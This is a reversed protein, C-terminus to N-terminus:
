KPLSQRKLSENDTQLLENGLLHEIVKVDNDTNFTKLKKIKFSKENCLLTALSTTVEFQKGNVFLLCPESNNETTAKRKKSYAFRSGYQRSLVTDVSFDNLNIAEENDNFLHSYRPTTIHQGFWAAINDPNTLEDLLMKQVKDLANGSIEGPTSQFLHLDEPDEYFNDQTLQQLREDCYASIMESIKPARFGISFTMCEGQAIGWHALKPPLYLIDGPQLLWEQDTTFEKVLSLDCNKVLPTKNDPDQNCFNGVKWLREGEAQLLFVDYHDFHPGVSGQDTAYSIMIDDLRWSPIFKFYELIQATQSDVTDIGQVLLTWNDEPLNAFVNEEFPGHKLEWSNGETHKQETHVILRSELDEELSLGALEDASIPSQFNPFAQRILLPKKQWYDKLFIETTITDQQDFIDM